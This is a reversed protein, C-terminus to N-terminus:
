GSIRTGTRSNSARLGHGPQHDLRARHVAGIKKAIDDPTGPFFTKRVMEPTAPDTVATFGELSMSNPKM